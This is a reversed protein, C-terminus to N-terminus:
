SIPPECSELRCACCSYPLKHRRVRAAKGDGRCCCGSPFGECVGRHLLCFRPSCGSDPNEGDPYDSCMPCPQTCGTDLWSWECKGRNLLVWPNGVRRLFKGSM